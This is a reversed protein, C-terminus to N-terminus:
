YLRLQMVSQGVCRINKSHKAIPWGAPRKEATGTDHKEGDRPYFGPIWWGWGAGGADSPMCPPEARQRPIPMEEEEGEDKKVVNVLDELPYKVGRKLFEEEGDKWLLHM